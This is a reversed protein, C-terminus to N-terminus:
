LGGKVDRASRYGSGLIQRERWISIEAYKAVAGFEVFFVGSQWGYLAFVSGFVSSGLGAGHRRNIIYASHSPDGCPFSIQL